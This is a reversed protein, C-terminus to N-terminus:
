RTLNLYSPVALLNEVVPVGATSLRQFSHHGSASLICGTGMAKAVEWDHLTDGIMVAQGADLHHQRIFALGTEIKGAAYHDKQGLLKDFVDSLGYRAVQEELVDQPSASLVVQPIGAQQIAHLVQKAGVCLGCREAAPLYHNMYDLALEEFPHRQFDFGAKEYYTRIPFGFVERYGELDYQLPYGWRELLGNLQDVCLSLDDLLTGNWDWLILSPKYM